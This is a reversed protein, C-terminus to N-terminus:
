LASVGLGHNGQLLQVYHIWLGFDAGDLGFHDFTPRFLTWLHRGCHTRLGLERHGGAPERHCRRILRWLHCHSDSMCLLHFHLFGPVAFRNRGQLWELVLSSEKQHWQHPRRLVERYARPRGGRAAKARGRRRGCTRPQQIQSAQPGGSVILALFLLAYQMRLWMVAKLPRERRAWKFLTPIGLFPRVQSPVQQPPEIRISPDWEGPPLVTVADLFEDIGALLHERKRAKYAVDHFVEDSM